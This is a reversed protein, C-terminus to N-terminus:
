RAGICSFFTTGSNVCEGEFTEGEAAAAAGSSAAVSFEPDWCVALWGQTRDVLAVEGEDLLCGQGPDPGLADLQAAVLRDAEFLRTLFFEDKAHADWAASNRREADEIQFFSFPRAVTARLAIRTLM